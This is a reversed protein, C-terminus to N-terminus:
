SGELHSAPCSTVFSRSLSFVRACLLCVSFCLVCIMSLLFMNLSVCGFALSLRAGGGFMKEKKIQKLSLFGWLLFFFFM